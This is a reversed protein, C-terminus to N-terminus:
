VLCVEKLINKLIPVCFERRRSWAKQIGSDAWLEKIAGAFSEDLNWVDETCAALILKVNEDNAAANDNPVNLIWVILVKQRSVVILDSGKCNRILSMQERRPLAALVCVNHDPVEILLLGDM